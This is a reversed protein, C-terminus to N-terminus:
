KPKRFKLIFQDTKGQVSPDRVGVNHPDAPNALANSEGVYEFGAAQAQAKVLAPDIRHMEKPDGVGPLAKHDLVIYIGGPKLAAFAAKDLAAAGNPDRNYADHYNQSTWVLDVPAPVTFAGAALPLFSVNAHGASAAIAKVPAGDGFTVGYVKGKDGVATSFIRTFYGGGPLLEAISQGPKVEAFELMAAPKREADRAQDVAPRDPAAVAATIYAPTAAQAATTMVALAAATLVAKM